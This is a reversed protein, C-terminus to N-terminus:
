MEFEEAKRRSIEEETPEHFHELVTGPLARQLDTLVNKDFGQLGTLGITKIGKLKKLDPVSAPTVSTHDFRYEVIEPRPFRSFISRLIKTSKDTIGKNGAVTFSCIKPAKELCMFGRDTVKLNTASLLVLTPIKSVMEFGVDSVDLDKLRLETIQSNQLLALNKEDFKRDGGLELMRLKMGSLIQILEKDVPMERVSVERLLPARRLGAIAKNDVSANEPETLEDLEIAQLNEFQSIAELSDASVDPCRALVMSNIKTKHLIKLNEASCGTCGVLRLRRLNPAKEALVKLQEPDLQLHHLGIERDNLRRRVDMAMRTQDVPDIELRDVPSKNDKIKYDSATKTEPKVENEKQIFFCVVIVGAMLLLVVVIIMKQKQWPPADVHASQQQLLDQAAAEEAKLVKEQEEQSIKALEASITKMSPRLQPDKLLMSAILAELDESFSKDLSIEGILKPTEFQHLRLLEMASNVEFPRRGTFAEYMVCGLSYVDCRDTLQDAVSQEPSMYPPTGFIMDKSTLTHDFKGADAIKAIGFDLIKVTLEGGSNVIMINAPKLDRHLVGHEHAYALGISCETFLWLLDSQTIGGEAITEALTQGELYEM